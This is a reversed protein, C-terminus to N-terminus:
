GTFASLAQASRTTINYTTNINDTGAGTLNHLLVTTNDPGILAVELDGQFTHTIDVRVRLSVITGTAAVNITSTIGTTNNDPIATGVTLTSYGNLTLKWSNFTGVDAGALDRVRLKWAGSSSKGNFATLAQASRTTVNYTTNINDASGGTRNHLLVTTGDPGILAVELDGQFTHTIGVNVSVSTLTMATAVNITSTVGTTNNDPIALGPTASSTLVQSGGGSCASTTATAQASNASACAAVSQVVYFYATNCTLGADGFSPSASTGALSYPGGSATGRLVNYSTAGAVASWALNIQTQGAATATLGTPVAPPTCGGAPAAAAYVDISDASGSSENRNDTFIGIAQSGLADLGNYDGWQFSDEIHPSTASTVRAPASWSNGGDTSKSYYIDVNTRAANQRTDYYMVHVTGDSGVGLWPHFRDVTNADATEHPTRVSWTAGGDSSFAVQIRGHNNAATPSEPATTDTWAAYIRNAFPGGTLDADASVYQFARRTEMAPINFDYGDQNTAVQVSAGFSAGGNTSKKVLIKKADIAPWFYFVNGSKDTTIDSGIGDEGAGSITLAASWTNGFDTSRSFKLINNDHWTIYVNDRFASTAFKDAHLYEKDSVGGSTIERRPDGPTVNQLDTWTQGGDGSRYVWVNCASAGCAGLTAAYAKTGDASWDESPDCCTSGLPLAAAQTWSSGGNLSYHMVQGSGPGNSGAVVKNADLPHFKIASEAGGNPTTVRVDGALARLEWDDEAEANGQLVVYRGDRITARQYLKGDIRYGGYKQLFIQLASRPYQGEGSRRLGPNAKRMLVRFFVPIPDRQEKENPALFSLDKRTVRYNRDDWPGLATMAAYDVRRDVGKSADIRLPVPRPPAAEAAQIFLSSAVLVAAAIRSFLHKTM